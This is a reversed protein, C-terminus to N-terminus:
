EEAEVVDAYDSASMLHDVDGSLKIKFIWGENYPDQNILEPTDSLAENVEVITGALPSYVDSAAKVSEVVGCEDELAVDMELEPLEVYVLDGLQAQAYDTIGVTFIGDGEDRLWEHSKVYLLDDQVNSM